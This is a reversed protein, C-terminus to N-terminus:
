AAVDPLVPSREINPCQVSTYWVIPAADKFPNPEEHQRPEHYEGCAVCYRPASNWIDTMAVTAAKNRRACRQLDAIMADNTYLM